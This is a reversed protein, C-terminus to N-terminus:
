SLLGTLLALCGMGFTTWLAWSFVLGSPKMLRLMLISFAALVVGTILAAYPQVPGDPTHPLAQIVFMIPLMALAMGSSRKLYQAYVYGVYRVGTGERAVREREQDLWEFRNPKM